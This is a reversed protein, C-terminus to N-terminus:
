LSSGSALCEARIEDRLIKEASLSLTRNGMQQNSTISMLLLLISLILLEVHTELRAEDVLKRRGYNGRQEKGLKKGRTSSVQQVCRM